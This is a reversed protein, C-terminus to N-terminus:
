PPAEQQRPPANDAASEREDDNERALLDTLFCDPIRASLQLKQARDSARWPRADDAAQDSHEPQRGDDDCTEEPRAPGLEVGGLEQGPEVEPRAGDEDRAAEAVE